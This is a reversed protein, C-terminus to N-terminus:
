ETASAIGAEAIQNNLDEVSYELSDINAEKREAWSGAVGNLNFGTMNNLYTIVNGLDTYQVVTNHSAAIEYMEHWMTLMEEGWGLKDRKQQEDVRIVTPDIIKFRECASLLAVGEPHPAERILCYGKPVSDVYYVGDGDPDRPVPVVMVDSMDGYIEEEQERSVMEDLIYSPGMAFLTVGQKMGGGESGYNLSWDNWHPYALDNKEVEELFNAARELRPDDANAYFKGSEPDLMVLYTGTSSMFSTDTHWGNFAYRGEDPDGFDQAMDMLVDWTWENAYYLEAPDEFGYDEFVRRNYLMCSNNQVDTLFMYNHGGLSFFTESFYKMGEWLPDDYDIYDDVPQYLKKIFSQPFASEWARTFDPADNSLLLNALDTNLTEWTTEHWEVNGNYMQQFTWYGTQLVENESYNHFDDYYYFYELTTGAGPATAADPLKIGAAALIAVADETPLTLQIPQRKRGGCGVLAVILLAALAIALFRKKM